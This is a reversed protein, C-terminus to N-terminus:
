GGTAACVPRITVPRSRPATSTATVTVATTVRGVALVVDVPSTNPGLAVNRVVTEFGRMAITLEVSGASLGTFRYAGAQDTTTTAIETGGSALTVLAGPVVGTTDRVTGNLTLQQAASASALGCVSMVALVLRRACVKM